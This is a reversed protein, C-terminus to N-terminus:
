DLPLQGEEVPIYKEFIHIFPYELNKRIETPYQRLKKGTTFNITNIAIHIHLKNKESSHIAYCAQHGLSFLYDCCEQAYCCLASLNYNICAYNQPSIHIIYHCMLSGTANYFKQVYEFERIIDEIPKKYSNGFNFGYAILEHLKDENPRTRTIYRILNKAADKNKFNLRNLNIM